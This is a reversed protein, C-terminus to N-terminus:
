KRTDRAQNKYEENAQRGTKRMIDEIAKSYKIYGNAIADDLDIIVLASQEMLGQMEKSAHAYYDAIKSYTFVIHRTAALKLFEKEEQSVNSENINTIVNKAIPSNFLFYYYIHFYTAIYM